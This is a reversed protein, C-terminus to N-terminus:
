EHGQERSPKQGTDGESAAAEGTVQNRLRQCLIKGFSAHEANHHGLERIASIGARLASTVQALEEPSLTQGNQVRSLLEEVGGQYSEGILNPRDISELLSDRLEASLAGQQVLVTLIAKADKWIKGSAARVADFTYDGLNQTVAIADGFSLEQASNRGSWKWFGAAILTLFLVPALIRVLSRRAQRRRFEAQARRLTEQIRGEELPIPKVASAVLNKHVASFGGDDDHHTM